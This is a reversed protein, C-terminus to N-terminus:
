IAQVPPAHARSHEMWKARARMFIFQIARCGLYPWCADLGFPGFPRPHVRFGSTPRPAIPPKACPDVTMQVNPDLLHHATWHRLDLEVSCDLYVFESGGLEVFQAVLPAAPTKSYQQGEWGERLLFMAHPALCQAADAVLAVTNDCLEAETNPQKGKATGIPREGSSM